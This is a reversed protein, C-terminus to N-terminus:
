TFIGHCRAAQEPNFHAMGRYTVQLLFGRGSQPKGRLQRQTSPAPSPARPPQRSVTRMAAPPLSATMLAPCSLGSSSRPM